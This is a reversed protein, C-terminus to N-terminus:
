NRYIDCYLMNGDVYTYLTISGSGNYRFSFDTGAKYDTLIADSSSAVYDQNYNKGYTSKEVISIDSVDKVALWVVSAVQAVGGGTVKVGRGNTASEYGYSQTRPGVVSNFSFIDGNGLTTDYICNAALTVNHIVNDEEGCYISASGLRVSGFNVSQSPAGWAGNWENSSETGVNGLTISCYVYNDNTWMEIYMDDAYNTFIFDTGASYDTIVALSGDSVYNDSFRSGYTKLEDYAIEGQVDLLALYLTTAVQSVGGGTVKAGRGNVAAEYGYSQTRPGVVDNFSFTSGYGVYTGNLADVALNINNIKSQSSGSLTTRSSVYEAAVAVPVMMIGTVLIVLVMTYALIKKLM